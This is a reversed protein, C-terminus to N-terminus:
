CIKIAFQPCVAACYSCLTCKKGDVVAKGNKIKIANQKCREACKGCGECFSDIHLRKKKLSLTAKLKSDTKRGEFVDVNMIVEEVSQMGVAISHVYPLDLVFKMSAEYDAALNGGGLAKMSYIGKGNDNALKIAGLMEEVTGDKIGIGSKNLLPHIVDIEQMEACARVVEINHTSVGVAKIMGKEKANIFYELADRHGRLTMRSEQEHLMFIDIVDMDLERRARELSEAAGDKTYAYCKTSVIPRIGTMEIAKKIYGYTKYLEATDIFNVGLRFASAIVESGEDISLNAQLPGIILGGFCLRSVILETKGLKVYEM